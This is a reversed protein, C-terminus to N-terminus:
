HLQTYILRNKNFTDTLQVTFHNLEEEASKKRKRNTSDYAENNKLLSVIKERCQESKEIFHRIQKDLDEKFASFNNQVSISDNYIMKKSYNLIEGNAKNILKRIEKLLTESENLFYERRFILKIMMNDFAQGWASLKNWIIPATQVFTSIAVTWGIMRSIFRGQLTDAIHEVKFFGWIEVGGRYTLIGAALTVFIIVILAIGRLPLKFSFIHFFLPKLFGASLNLLISRNKRHRKM